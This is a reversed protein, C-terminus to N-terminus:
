RTVVPGPQDDSTPVKGAVEPWGDVYVLRDMLMARRSNVDDTPKTRTRRADVGHYMLWHWNEFM